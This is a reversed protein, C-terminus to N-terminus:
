RLFQHLNLFFIRKTSSLDLCQWQCSRLAFEADIVDSAMWRLRRPAPMCRKAEALGWSHCSRPPAYQCVFAKWVERNEGFEWRKGFLVVLETRNQRLLRSFFTFPPPRRSHAGTFKKPSDNASSSVHPSRYRLSCAPRHSSWRTAMRASWGRQLSLSSSCSDLRRQWYSWGCSAVTKKALLKLRLTCCRQGSLLGQALRFFADLLQSRKWISRALTQDGLHTSFSLLFPKPPTTSFQPTWVKDLFRNKQDTRWPRRLLMRNVGNTDIEKHNVASEKTIQRRHRSIAEIASSALSNSLHERQQLSINQVNWLPQLANQRTLIHTHNM